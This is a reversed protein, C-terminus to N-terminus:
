ILQQIALICSKQQKHHAHHHQKHLNRSLNVENALQLLDFSGKLGLIPWQFHFLQLQFFTKLIPENIFCVM